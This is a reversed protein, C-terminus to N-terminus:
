EWMVIYLLETLLPSTKNLVRTLIGSFIQDHYSLAPFRECLGLDITRVLGSIKSLNISVEPGIHSPGSLSPRYM